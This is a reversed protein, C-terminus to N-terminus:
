NILLSHQISALSPLQVDSHTVLPVLLEVEGGKDSTVTIPM